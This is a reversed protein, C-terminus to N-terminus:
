EKKEVAECCEEATSGTTTKADPRQVKGVKDCGCFADCMLQEYCERDTSGLLPGGSGQVKRKWKTPNETTYQSCYLPHCCEEDTSGQWKFANTDIRKYWMTGNGDGDYDTSCVYDTCFTKDCCEEFTSGLKDTDNDSQNQNKWKTSTCSFASCYVPSCCEGDSFGIRSIQGAGGDVEIVVARKVYKSQSSCNYDKCLKSECCEEDTSGKRKASGSVLVMSENSCNYASCFIPECCRDLSYGQVPASALAKYKSAPECSFNACLLPECCEALTHGGGRSGAPTTWMGDATSCNFESCPTIACCEEDTSGLRHTGDELKESLKHESDKASCGTYDACYRADCCETKNSGLIGSGKKPSYTTGNCIDAPCLKPKCCHQADNGMREGFDEAEEWQTTPECHVTQECYVKDCCQNFRDGSSDAKRQYYYSPLCGEFESCPLQRLCLDSFVVSHQSLVSPTTGRYEFSVDGATSEVESIVELVQESVSAPVTVMLFGNGGPFGFKLPVNYGSTVKAKFQWKRKLAWAPMESLVDRLETLNDGRFVNGMTSLGRADYTHEPHPMVNFECWAPADDATASDVALKAKHHVESTGNVATEAAVKTKSSVSLTSLPDM